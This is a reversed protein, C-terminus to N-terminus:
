IHGSLICFPTFMTLFVTPFNQWMCACQYVPPATLHQMPFLAPGATIVTVMLLNSFRDPSWHGQRYFSLAPRSSNLPGNWGECLISRDFALKGNIISWHQYGTWITFTFVGTNQKLRHTTSLMFQVVSTLLCFASVGLREPLFMSVKSYFSHIHYFSKTTKRLLFSCWDKVQGQM